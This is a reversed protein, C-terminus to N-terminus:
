ATFAPTDPQPAAVVVTSTRREASPSVHPSGTATLRASGPNQGHCMSTCHIGLRVANQATYLALLAPPQVVGATKMAALPSPRAQLATCCGTSALPAVKASCSM